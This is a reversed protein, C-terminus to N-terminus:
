DPTVAFSVDKETSNGTVTDKVEIKAKYSGLSLRDLAIYKLFTLHPTPEKLVETLDYTIPKAAVKSEKMLTVTVRVRPKKTEASLSADYVEFFIILNDKSHFERSPAPRIQVGGQNLVDTSTGRGLELPAAEVHRSLVIGSTSFDGAGPLDIRERRASTKGSLKDRLVLEIFYAGPALEVDQRFFIKNSQIARFQEASLDVNFTGGLRSLIKDQSGRVVGLVELQMLQKDNRREFKVADPPLEISLPILYHGEQFRFAPFEVFSRLSNDANDATITALLRKDEPSLSIVEDHPLAYYGARSIVKTEPRSVEIKLKRFGGDFNPDSSQYALTYRSRIERDIRNLAKGIDNTNKILQGGTDGAIRYLIDYGRDPGEQRAYDFVTEGGVAQIRQEQKTAASIAALPSRPAPGGSQSAGAKLGASDIVSIAVNARTAIDITSQVQWDLTQPTIFGQSFMVLTKKGPIGRLAECIAALAALIPRSQQVNLASRLKIFQQLVRAAIMAQAATSGGAATTISGPLAGGSNQIIGQQTAINGAIDSQELNKNSASGSYASEVAAILKEKDQTFPQLIRLGSTISFLAVTDSDAIQERIYKITGERVQKLNTVDTTQGDLVLSIINRPPGNAASRRAEFTSSGTTNDSDSLPPEFFTVEQRVGNEFVTFDGMKLDTVYNGKKDKVMVDINVLNSKVRLVEVDDQAPPKPPEQKQQAQLHSASLCALVVLLRSLLKATRSLRISHKFM